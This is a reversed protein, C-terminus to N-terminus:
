SDVHPVEKHPDIIEGNVRKAVVENTKLNILLEVDVNESDRCWMMEMVGPNRRLLYGVEFRM